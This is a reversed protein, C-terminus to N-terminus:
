EPVDSPKDTTGESPVGDSIVAEEKSTAGVSQPVDSPVSPVMVAETASEDKVVSDTVSVPVVSNGAGSDPHATIWALLLSNAFFVAALVATARSLFNGSGKSGFVTGAAGGGFAAGADAGKGHQILVLGIISLAVLIQLILLVNYLM